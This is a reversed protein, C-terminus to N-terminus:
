APRPAAAQVGQRSVCSCVTNSPEAVSGSRVPGPPPDDSSEGPVEASIPKPRRSTQKRLRGRLGRGVRGPGGPLMAPSLSFPMAALIGIGNKMHEGLVQAESKKNKQPLSKGKSPVYRFREIAM